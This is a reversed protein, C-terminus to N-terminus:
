LGLVFLQYFAVTNKLIHVLIGAYITGTLERLLCMVVSLVFVVVGVNWQGHLAAFLLSTLLISLTMSLWDVLNKSFLRRLRGYLWGRFILEEAIPVLIALVLYAIIRDTGGLYTNFGVNQAQEANFWPFVSFVATVGAALLMALIFGVVALGIDTWTPLGRIGIEAWNARHGGIKIELRGSINTPEKAAPSTNKAKASESGSRKAIKGRVARVSKKASMVVEPTLYVLIVFALGYILAMMIATPITQAMTAQGLIWAFLYEVAFQVGIVIAATWALLVAAKGLTLWADRATITGRVKEADPKTSGRNMAIKRSM